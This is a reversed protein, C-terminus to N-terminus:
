PLPTRTAGATPRPVGPRGTRGAREPPITGGARRERNWSGPERYILPLAIMPREGALLFAFAPRRDGGVKDEAKQPQLAARMAAIEEPWPATVFKRQAPDFQEFRVEGSDTKVGLALGSVLQSDGPRKSNRIFEEALDEELEASFFLNPPGPHSESVARFLSGNLEARFGLMGSELADRREQLEKESLRDILGVVMFGSVLLSVLLVSLIITTASLRRIKLV